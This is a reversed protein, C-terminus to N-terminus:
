LSFCVFEGECSWDFLGGFCIFVQNICKYYEGKWEWIIDVFKECGFDYRM